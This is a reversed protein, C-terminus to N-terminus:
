IVGSVRPRRPHSATEEPSYHGVNQLFTISDFRRPVVCRRLMMDWFVWTRLFLTTVTKFGALMIRKRNYKIANCLDAHRCEFNIALVNVNTVHNSRIFIKIKM